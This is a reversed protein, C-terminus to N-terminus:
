EVSNAFASSSKRITIIIDDAIPTPQKNENIGMTIRCPLTVASDPTHSLNKFTPFTTDSIESTPETM